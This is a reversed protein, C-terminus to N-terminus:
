PGNAELAASVAAPELEGRHRDGDIFLVPIFVVGSALASTTDAVIRDAGIGVRPGRTPPRTPSTAGRSAATAPDCQVVSGVTGRLIV